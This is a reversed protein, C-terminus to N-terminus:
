RHLKERRTIEPVEPSLSVAQVAVEAYTKGTSSTAGMAAEKGSLPPSPDTAVDRTTQTDTQIGKDEPPLLDTATTQTQVGKDEPPLSENSVIDEAKIIADVFAGWRVGEDSYTDSISTWYANSRLERTDELLDEQGRRRFATQTSATVSTAPARIKEETQTSVTVQILPARTKEEPQLEREFKSISYGATGAGSLADLLLRAARVAASATGDRDRTDGLWIALGKMLQEAAGVFMKQAMKGRHIVMQPCRPGCGSCDQRCTVPPAAMVAKGKGKGKNPM